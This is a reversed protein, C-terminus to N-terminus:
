SINRQFRLIHRETKLIAIHDNTVEIIADGEDLVAALGRPSDWFESNYLMEVPWGKSRADAEIDEIVARISRPIRPNRSNPPIPSDRRWSSRASRGSADSLADSGRTRDSTENIAFSTSSMPAEKSLSAMKKRSSSITPLDSSTEHSSEYKVLGDPQLLADLLSM